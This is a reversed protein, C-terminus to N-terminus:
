EETKEETDEFDNEEGNDPNMAENREIEEQVKADLDDLIQQAHLVINELPFNNVVDQLYAKGQFEEGLSIYCQSALIYAEGYWLLFEKRSGLLSKLTELAELYEGEDFQIKAVMYHAEAGYVDKSNNSLLVFEDTSKEYEQKHYLILGKYLSAKNVAYILRSESSLIQNSYNFSEDFQKLHFTGVM